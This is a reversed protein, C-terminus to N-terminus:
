RPAILDERTIRWLKGTNPVPEIGKDSVRVVGFDVVYLSTGARDFRAAVPRELGRTGLASAPGAKDGRNRAFAEVKGTRPDVSVVSFGVPGSVKGVKPAMDGFLAVFASGARGFMTNRSVDLGTAAAHVPLYALPSPPKGPHEALVFGRTAGKSESYFESTLARGEAHDPWGHWVPEGGPNIRWVPDSAGFVPRSGRTDFGNEAVLLTGGPELALGFPNRLGWAVLEVDGGSARVRLIAGSCPVRGQIIQGPRSPTGFPLYAGTSVKDDPAPTLPNPSEWNTGTLTVDRCPVDHFAPARPLWGYEFNDVGVVGSNTATGQGFYIWGDDTIVPGNTHHDGYSPLGEVIVQTDAIM